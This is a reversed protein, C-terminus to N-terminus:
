SISVTTAIASRQEVVKELSAAAQARRVPFFRKLNLFHREFCAWSVAAVATTLALAIVYFALQAPLKSGLITPFRDPTFVRDRLLTRVPQHFLYMAYSYRGFLRMLRSSLFRGAFNGATPAFAIPLMSAFLAALLTYGFIQGPGRFQWDAGMWVFLGVMLMGSAAGGWRAYPLITRVGGPGRAAAAILAGAALSDMRCPTLVYPSIWDAHRWVLGARALLSLVGVTICAGILQRRSLLLVLAPWILYFQEEIALSWTVSLPGHPFSDRWAISYNCLYAWYWIPSGDEPALAHAKLSPFRPVLILFLTLAAYYLPFIRLVRRAYFNRFYNPSGKSDLLIGTILFGSLVFFLDVGAWGFLGIRAWVRDLGCAPTMVTMHFICVALIAMGRVGDLAPIHHSLDPENVVVAQRM